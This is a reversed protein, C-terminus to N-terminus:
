APLSENHTPSETQLEVPLPLVDADICCRFGVNHGRYFVGRGTRFQCTAQSHFYTDFAGGRVEIMPEDLQISQGDAAIPQFETESWEWVNGILQRVGSPTNGGPCATVPVTQGQGSAWTNAKDPDFVNGWPYRPEAAQAHGKAWTAARQWQEATPLRKGVWVAYANAEHWCIGVVPHDMQVPAPSGHSWFRPGPRGTSDVFQLVAPLLDEPWLAPDSYGGAEVFKLYDANSIWHRDIFHANVPTAVGRGSLPDLNRSGVPAPSTLLYVEGGPVLAMEHQLAKWAFSTALDDQTRLHEQLLMLCYQRNRILRRTDQSMQDFQSATGDPKLETAHRQRWISVAENVFAAFSM